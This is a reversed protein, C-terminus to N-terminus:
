RKYIKEKEKGELIRRAGMQLANLEDEGPRVTIEGLHSAYKKILSTFRDSYALGGTLIIGDIKGLLPVTMRAISKAAGYAMADYVLAAKENGEDIMKEVEICDTTGLYSNLGGKGSILRLVQEKTMGSDFCLETWMTLQIGGTREPSFPGEDYSDDDIIKGGSHATATIGGGMHCVIINMDNYSRGKEEAFAIAQARSNLVHCCGYRRLGDLGSVEAVPLLDVGMVSDYIFAPINYKEGIELAIVAGLNSAHQPNDPSMMAEALARDVRYGGGSLGHLTGGRGVAASLQNMDYGQENVADLIYKLRYEKQDPIGSFASIEDASHRVTKEFLMGDESFVAVKTSTSGPNVALIHINGNKM